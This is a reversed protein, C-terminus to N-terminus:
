LQPPIARPDSVVKDSPAATAVPATTLITKVEPIDAASAIRSQKTGSGASFLTVFASGVFVTFDVYAGVYPIWADPVLHTLHVAGGSIGSGVTVAFSIWFVVVPSINPM